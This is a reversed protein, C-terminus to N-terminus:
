PGRGSVWVQGVGRQRDRQRLEELRAEQEEWEQTERARIEQEVWPPERGLTRLWGPHQASKVVQQIPTLDAMEGYIQRLQGLLRASPKIPYGRHRQLALEMRCVHKWRELFERNQSCLQATFGQVKLQGIGQYVNLPVGIRDEVKTEEEEEEQELEESQPLRERLKKSISVLQKRYLQGELEQYLRVLRHYELTEGRGEVEELIAELLGYYSVSGNKGVKVLGQTVETAVGKAVYRYQAGDTQERGRAREVHQRERDARIGKKELSECWYEVVLKGIEEVQEQSLEEDFALALHLHPHFTEKQMHVMVETGRVQGVYGAAKMARALERRKKVKGWTKHQAELQAKLGVGVNSCTLVVMVITGGGKEVEWLVQDAQTMVEVRHRWQCQVCYKSRCRQLGRWCYCGLPEKQELYIVQQEPIEKVGCDRLSQITTIQRQLQHLRHRHEKRVGQLEETKGQTRCNDRRKGLSGERGPTEGGDDHLSFAQVNPVQPTQVKVM